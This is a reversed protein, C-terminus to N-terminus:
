FSDSVNKLSSLFSDVLIPNFDTGAGEHLLGAITPVNVAKRYPRETRLADFFDSIAVMQSVLHQKRSSKKTEPYGLGNFKVHHEFAVIKAIPPVDPIKSLHMTGFVPHKKMTCWEGSDLKGQKDLIENSVFLKGLDHLLGALGANHLNEGRLGLTEAQFLTLVSVNAAHVFTYENYSKVPSIIRLVNSERKLTSVFNIVADELGVMDLNRFHSVGQYAEKIKGIGEDM